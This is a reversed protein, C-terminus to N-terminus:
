FFLFAVHCNNMRPGRDFDPELLEVLRPADVM